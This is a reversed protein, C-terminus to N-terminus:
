KYVEEVNIMPLEIDWNGRIEVTDPMVYFWEAPEFPIIKGFSYKYDKNIDNFITITYNGEPIQKFIIEKESNVFSLKKLEKNEINEIEAGFSSVVAGTIPIQM